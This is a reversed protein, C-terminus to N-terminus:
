FGGFMRMVLTAIRVVWYLLRIAGMLTGPNVLKRGLDRVCDRFGANEREVSPPDTAKSM